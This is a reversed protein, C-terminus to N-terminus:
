VWWLGFYPAIVSKHPLFLALWKSSSNGREVQVLKHGDLFTNCSDVCCRLHNRQQQICVQEITLGKECRYTVLTFILGVCLEKATQFLEFPILALVHCVSDIRKLITRCSVGVVLRCSGQAGVSPKGRSALAMLPPVCLLLQGPSTTRSEHPGVPIGASAAKRALNKKVCDVM